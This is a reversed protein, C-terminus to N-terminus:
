PWCGYKKLFALNGKEVKVFQVYVTFNVWQGTSRHKPVVAYLGLGDGRPGPMRQIGGNFTSPGTISGHGTDIKAKCTTYYYDAPSGDSKPPIAPALFKAYYEEGPHRHIWATTQLDPQSLYESGYYAVDRLYEAAAECNVGFLKCAGTMIDKFQDSEM